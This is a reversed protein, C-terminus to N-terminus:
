VYLAYFMADISWFSDRSLGWGQLLLHGASISQGELVVTAGDSNGAFVHSSLTDLLWTFLVLGSAVVVAVKIAVLARVRWMRERIPAPDIVIVREEVTSESMAFM